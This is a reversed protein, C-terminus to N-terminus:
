GPNQDRVLVRIMHLAQRHQTLLQMNWDIAVPWRLLRNLIRGLRPQGAPQKLRAGAEFHAVDQHLREHNWVVGLVRHTVQEAGAGPVDTEQRVQAMGRPQHEFPDLRGMRQHQFGVMVHLHQLITWAAGPTQLLANQAPMSMEGIFGGRIGGLLDHGGVQPMQIEAMQAALAVAGLQGM